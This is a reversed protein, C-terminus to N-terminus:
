AHRNVPEYVATRQVLQIEPLEEGTAPRSQVNERLSIRLEISLGVLWVTMYTKKFFLWRALNLRLEAGVVM